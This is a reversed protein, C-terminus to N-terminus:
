SGSDQNRGAEEPPSLLEPLLQCSVLSGEGGRREGVGAAEEEGARGDSGGAEGLAAIFSLQARGGETAKAARSTPM